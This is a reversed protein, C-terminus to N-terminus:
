NRCPIPAFRAGFFWYFFLEDENEKTEMSVILGANYEERVYQKCM